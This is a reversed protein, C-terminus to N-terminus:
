GPPDWGMAERGRTGFKPVIRIKEREVAWLKRCSRESLQCNSAQQHLRLWEKLQNCDRSCNQLRSHLRRMIEERIPVCQKGRCARLDDRLRTMDLTRDQAMGYASHGVTGFDAVALTIAMLFLMTRPRPATQKVEGPM